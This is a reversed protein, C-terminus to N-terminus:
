KRGNWANFHNCYLLMLYSSLYLLRLRDDVWGTQFVGVGNMRTCGTNGTVVFSARGFLQVVVQLEVWYGTCTNGSVGVGGVSWNLLRPGHGRWSLRVDHFGM